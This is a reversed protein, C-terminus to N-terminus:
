LLFAEKIKIFNKSKFKVDGLSIFLGWINSFAVTRNMDDNEYEEEEEEDNEEVQQKIEIKPISVARKKGEKIKDYFYLADLDELNQKNLEFIKKNQENKNVNNKNEINLIMPNKCNNNRQNQGTNKKNLGKEFANVKKQLNEILKQKEKYKKNLDFLVKSMNEYQENLNYNIQKLKKNETSFANVVEHYGLLIKQLLNYVMVNNNKFITNGLLKLLVDFAHKLTNYKKSKSNTVNEKLKKEMENQIESVEKTIKYNNTNNNDYINYKNNNHNNNLKYYTTNSNKLNPKIYKKEINGTTNNNQYNNNHHELLGLSPKITINVKKHNNTNINANTNNNSNKSNREKKDSIEIYKTLVNSNYKKIPSKMLNNQSWNKSIHSISTSKQKIKINNNYNNSINNPTDKAGNSMPNSPTNDINKSNNYNDSQIETIFKINNSLDYQSMNKVSKKTNNIDVSLIMKRRLKNNSYNNMQNPREMKPNTNNNVNIYNKISKNSNINNNVKLISIGYLSSFFVNDSNKSLNKKQYQIQKNVSIAKNIPNNIKKTVANSKIKDINLSSSRQKNQYSPNKMKEFNLQNYSKKSQIYNNTYNIM